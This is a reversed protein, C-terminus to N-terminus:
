CTGCAKPGDVLVIGAQTHKVAVVVGPTIARAGLFAGSFAVAVLLLPQVAKAIRNMHEELNPFTSAPLNRRWFRM